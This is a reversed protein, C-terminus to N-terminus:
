FNITRTPRMGVGCLYPFCVFFWFFNANKAPKNYNRTYFAFNQYLLRARQTQQIKATIKHRTGNHRNGRACTVFAGVRACACGAFKYVRVYTCVRSGRRSNKSAARSNKSSGVHIKLGGRHSNKSTTHSNKSVFFGM